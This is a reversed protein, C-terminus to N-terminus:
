TGEGGEGGESVIETVVVEIGLVTIVGNEQIVVIEQIEGDVVTVITYETSSQHETVKISQVTTSITQSYVEDIKVLVTNIEPRQEAILVVDNSILVVEQFKNTIKEFYTEKVAVAITIKDVQKTEKTTKNYVFVFQTKETTTTSSVVTTIIRIDNLEQVTMTDLVIGTGSSEVTTIISQLETFKKVAIKIFTTPIVLVRPKQAPQVVQTNVVQM